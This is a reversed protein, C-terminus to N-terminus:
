GQGRRRRAYGEINTQRARAVGLAEAPVDDTIVSGAATWADDGITVPAVFATDVSTKVNRGIVTRHKRTGDFNATINGAGINTGEGVDADGIYSLHPVKATAGIRSNKIEVFTGAKAEAELVTGPRLYCFPGVSVNRGIAADVAVVHPGVSAGTAVTTAGRLVTFPHITVDPEIRVAAEIFTAAPEVITVGALMHARAIRDRLLRDAEALDIRTNIGHAVRADPHKHAAVPRGDHALLGVADTGVRELAPWLDAAAFVYIGSNVETLEREAPSADRVEVIRAVDGTTTRVVRGFDGGTEATRDITMVTAAARRARHADVLSALTGAEVLPADGYLVLVDGAFGALAPLAALAADGTGRPETQVVAEASPPLLAAIRDAVARDAPVVVCVRQAGVGEAAAVVWEVV